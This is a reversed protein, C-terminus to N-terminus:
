LIFLYSLMEGCGIDISKTESTSPFVDKWKPYRGEVLRSTLTTKDSVFVIQNDNVIIKVPAEPNVIARSILTMSRTPVITSSSGLEVSGHVEVPGLMKALRRGDTGVAILNSGDLELM